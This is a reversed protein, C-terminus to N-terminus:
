PNLHLLYEYGIESTPFIWNDIDLGSDKNPHIFYKSM